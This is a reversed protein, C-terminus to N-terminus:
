IDWLVHPHTPSDGYWFKSNECKSRRLDSQLYSHKYPLTNGIWFVPVQPWSIWDEHNGFVKDLAFVDLWSYEKMLFKSGADPWVGNISRIALYWDRFDVKSLNWGIGVHRLITNLQSQVSYQLMQTLFCEHYVNDIIFVPFQEISIGLMPVNKTLFPRAATLNLSYMWLSVLFTNDWDSSWLFFFPSIYSVESLKFFNAM